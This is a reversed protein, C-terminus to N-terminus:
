IVGIRIITKRNNSLKKYIDETMNWPTLSSKATEEIDEPVDVEEDVM